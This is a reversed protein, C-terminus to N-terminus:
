TRRDIEVALRWRTGPAHSTANATPFFVCLFLSLSLFLSPISSVFLLPSYPPRFRAIRALTRPLASIKLANGSRVIRSKLLAGTAASSLQEGKPVSCWRLMTAAIATADRWGIGDSAHMRTGNSIGKVADILTERAVQESRKPFHEVQIRGSLRV